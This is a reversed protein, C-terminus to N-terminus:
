SQWGGSIAKGICCLTTINKPNKMTKLDLEMMSEYIGSFWFKGHTLPFRPAAMFQSVYCYVSGKRPSFCLWLRNVTEERRM